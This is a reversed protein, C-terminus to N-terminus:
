RCPQRSGRPPGRRPVCSCKMIWTDSTIVRPTRASDGLSVTVIGVLREQNCVPIAGVDLEQMAQAAMTVTDKPSLARVGRTMVDSVQIM